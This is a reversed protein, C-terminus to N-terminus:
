NNVTIDGCDSEITLIIDSKPYNNNIKKDGLDVEADIYIKNTSGIKVDGYDNEIHSNKNISINDINIDGCDEEIDLYNLVEGISIDGYSSEITIDDVTGINIDGSSEKIKATKAKSIKIDGYDNNVIVKKGGSISVDGFDENVLISSNLFEGIEIDGYSNNIVIDNSYNSPLYVEIKSITSNICFGICDKGNAEIFLEDNDTKVETKNKYGYIVVRINESSTSKLYINSKDSKINIKQFSNDYSKDIVLENSVKSTFNFILNRNNGKLMDVMFIILLISIISLLTILAIILKNNKM